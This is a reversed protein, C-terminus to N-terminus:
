PAFQFDWGFYVASKTEAPALQVTKTATDDSTLPDTWEGPILINANESVSVYVCHLGPTVGTFTYEGAVDTTTTQLVASSCAGVALHVVVDPIGPEGVDLTGNARYGGGSLPVCGSEPSPTPGGPGPPACMDHYVVGKIQGKAMQPNCAVLWLGGALLIGAPIFKMRASRTTSSNM